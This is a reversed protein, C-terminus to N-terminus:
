RSFEGHAQGQSASSRAREIVFEAIAGPIDVGTTDVSNRFEMTGNVENVRYGTDDEFLDVAVVGGGVAASAEQSVRALEPLVDLGDARAGLATNTRWVDSTRTIAAICEGGVVFSRIDRGGTKVFPQMYTVAHAAGGLAQKHELALELADDDNVKGILRGWSGIVPKVVVPFGLEEAAALGAEPEFAVAAEVHPVEAAVLALTTAIKDGCTELVRSGNVPEVGHCELWRAMVVNRWHSKSRLLVADVRPFGRPWATLSGHVQRDDIVHLVVDRASFAEALLKEEARVGTCVMGITM